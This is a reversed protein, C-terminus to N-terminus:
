FGPGYAIGDPTRYIPRVNYFRAGEQYAVEFGNVGPDVTGLSVRQLANSMKVPEQRFVEYGVLQERAPDHAPPKWELRVMNGARSVKLSSVPPQPIAAQSVIGMGPEPHGGEASPLSPLIGARTEGGQPPEEYGYAPNSPGPGHFNGPIPGPGKTIVRGPSDGGFQMLGHMKRPVKEGEGPMVEQPAPPNKRSNSRIVLGALAAFIFVFMGLFLFGVFGDDDGTGNGGDGNPDQAYCTGSDYYPYGEKCCHGASSDYIFYGEACQYCSGGWFYPYGEPCCHGASTTFKYYGANCGTAPATTTGPLDACFGLAYLQADTMRAYEPRLKGAAAMQRAQSVTVCAGNVALVPCVSVFLTCFLIAIIFIM